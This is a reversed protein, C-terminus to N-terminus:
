SKKKVEQLAHLIINYYLCIYLMESNSRANRNVIKIHELLHVKKKIVGLKTDM